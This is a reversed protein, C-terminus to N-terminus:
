LVVTASSINAPDASNEEEDPPMIATGTEQLEASRADTVLIKKWEWGYALFAEENHIPRRKGESVVYVDPLGAIQLLTGDQFTVAEGTPLADLTEPPLPKIKPTQGFRNLLIDRSVIPRKIGNELAFVAGTKNNQVLEMVPDASEAYIPQGEEFADLDETSADIIEDESFGLSRLADKSDFGRKEDGVLLYVTGCPSRLLSYNPYRVPKREPYVELSAPKVSILNSENFRSLLTARSLVQRRVGYQILWIKKSEADQLLSGTPYDRTFWRQWIKVFNENGHLHPTYTYLAATAHNEPIVSTGDIKAEIGPGVGSVTFGRAALDSLYSSRIRKAAYYVQNGFGKFKQILPDDKSCDDCVAYGMAWALQRENPDSDEVLSQERQLLVLLFQPNLGFAEASEFIIDSARKEEGNVDKTKYSGLAGRAALFTQIQPRSMALPDTMEADSVLLNPNYSFALAQLPSLSVLALLSLLFLRQM